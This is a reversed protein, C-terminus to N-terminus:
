ARLLRVAVALRGRFRELLVAGGPAGWRRHGPAVAAAYRPLLDGLSRERPEAGGGRAGAARVTLFVYPYSFLTLALAAGPFGYIEPLREVGLPELAGQLMGRPGLASVLVFGGVYSPIVLPLAALVAWARRGPLDTRATLWALPVAIGVSAGTVVAALLASRGLVAFTEGDLVVEAFESWGGEFSRVVLYVLPLFMAAVVVGALVLFLLPPRSDAVRAGRLKEPLVTL